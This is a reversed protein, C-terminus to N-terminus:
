SPLAKRPGARPLGTGLPGERAGCYWGAATQYGRVGRRSKPSHNPEGGHSSFRHYVCLHVKNSGMLEQRVTDQGLIYPCAPKELAVILPLWEDEHGSM